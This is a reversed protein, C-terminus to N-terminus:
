YYRRAYEKVTERVLKSLTMGKRQCIQVLYDKQEKTLRIRLEADRIQRQQKQESM